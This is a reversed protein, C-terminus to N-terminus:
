RVWLGYFESGATPNIADSYNNVDVDGTRPTCSGGRCFAGLGSIGSVNPRRSTSIYSRDKNSDEVGDREGCKFYLRERPAGELMASDGDRVTQEAIACPNACAQNPGLNVSAGCSWSLRAFYDSLPEDFCGSVTRLLFQDRHRIMLAQGSVRHFAPSRFDANQSSDLLGFSRDSEWNNPDPSSPLWNGENAGDGNNTITAIYTW